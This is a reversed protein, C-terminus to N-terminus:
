HDLINLISFALLKRLEGELSRQSREQVAGARSVKQSPFAGLSPRAFKEKGLVEWPAPTARGGPCSGAPLFREVQSVGHFQDLSGLSRPVPSGKGALGILHM